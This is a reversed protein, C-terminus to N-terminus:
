RVPVAVDAATDASRMGLLLDFVDDGSKVLQFIQQLLGGRLWGRKNRLENRSLMRLWMALEQPHPSHPMISPHKETGNAATKLRKTEPLVGLNGSIMMLFNVRAINAAALRSM